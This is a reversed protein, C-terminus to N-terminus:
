ERWGLTSVKLNKLAQLYKVYIQPKCFPLEIETKAGTVQICGLNGNQQWGYILCGASPPEIEVVVKIGALPIGDPVSLKTELDYTIQSSM